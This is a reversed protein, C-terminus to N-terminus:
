CVPNLIALIILSQWFSSGFFLAAERPYEPEALNLKLVSVPYIKILLIIHPWNPKSNVMSFLVNMHVSQPMVKLSLHSSWEWLWFTWSVLTKVQSTHVVFTIPWLWNSPCLFLCLFCAQLMQQICIGTLEKVIFNIFLNDMGLIGTNQRRKKEPETM